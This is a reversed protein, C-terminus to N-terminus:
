NMIRTNLILDPRLVYGDNNQYKIEKLINIDSIVIGVPTYQFNFSPMDDILIFFQSNETDFKGRRVM